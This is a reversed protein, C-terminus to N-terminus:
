TNGKKLAEDGRKREMAIRGLTAFAILAWIINLGMAAWAGTYATLVTLMAAGALNLLQYIRSGGDVKKRSVLFYALLLLAAGVIGIIHVWTEVTFTVFLPYPM